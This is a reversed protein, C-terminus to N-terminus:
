IFICWQEILKRWIITGKMYVFWIYNIKTMMVNCKGKFIISKLWTTLRINWLCVTHIKVDKYRCCISFPTSLSVLLDLASTLASSLHWSKTPNLDARFILLRWIKQNLLVCFLGNTHHLLPYKWRTVSKTSKFAPTRLVAALMSYVSVLLVWESLQLLCTFTSVLDSIISVTWVCWCQTERWSPSTSQM